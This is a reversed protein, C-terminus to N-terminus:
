GQEEQNVPQVPEYEYPILTTNCFDGAHKDCFWLVTEGHESVFRWKVERRCGAIDCHHEGPTPNEKLWQVLDAHLAKNETWIAYAQLAYWAAPDRDPRLVFVFGDSLPTGDAHHVQYKGYLGREMDNETM